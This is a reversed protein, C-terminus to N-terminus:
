KVPQFETEFSKLQQYIVIQNSCNEISSRVDKDFRNAILLPQSKMINWTENFHFQEFPFLYLEALDSVHILSCISLLLDVAWPIWRMLPHWSNLLPSIQRQNRSQCSSLQFNVAVFSNLDIVNVTRIELHARLLFLNDWKEM